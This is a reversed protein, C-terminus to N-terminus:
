CKTVRTVGGRVWRRQGTGMVMTLIKLWLNRCDIRAGLNTKGMIKFGTTYLNVGTIYLVFPLSHGGRIASPRSVNPNMSYLSAVGISSEHM